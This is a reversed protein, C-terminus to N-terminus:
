QTGAPKKATELAEDLAAGLQEAPLAGSERKLVKVKGDAQLRGILFTPTGTVALAAGAREDAKVREAASAKLCIDYRAADLGDAAVRARLTDADLHTQDAFNSDHFKWFAGQEAACEAGIAASLAYKHLTELPFERFAFLVKGSKVYNREITPLTERAFRGCYPCQFDSFEILVVSASKDGKLQAGDLSIPESPIPPEPRQPRGTRASDTATAAPKTGRVITVFMAGCVLVIMLLAVMELARHLRAGLDRPTPVQPVGGM